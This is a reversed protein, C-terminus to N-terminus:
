NLITFRGANHIRRKPFQEWHFDPRITWNTQGLDFNPNYYPDGNALFSAWRQRYFASDLPHPDTRSKGRSVSEHHILVADPSMVIRYGAERVRLCLDVDGFGVAMKECFGEIGQFVETKILLCAATVASVEHNVLLSGLAGPHREGDDLRWKMFKGYHEAAGYMGVCVGGHQILTQDPYLLLAGVAGIDRQYSLRLMTDLWGAETAEIDNNCLLLHSYDDGLSRIARNNISSFNFAGQHRLRRHNPRQREFEDFYALSEAQDSDHDILVIDYDIGSITRHLSEVCQKVLHGYNKTPIVIAVRAKQPLPYDVKYYNFRDRAAVTAGALGSRELHRSLVRKSVAEVEAKKQHGTSSGRQRWQYLVEPIHVVKEAREAVRLILDYDHSIALSEDFGDIERLLATRFCVLHVIYPHGRLRELSFAPRFVWNQISDGSEDVLVEDSYLFDPADEVISDALRWLAQPEILDDHDLLACYRGTAMALARNSAAATNTNRASESVRIRADRRAYEKLTAVVQPDTSGDDAACLEWHPYWQALVSDLMARLLPLPTNYTPVLVSILPPDSWNAGIERLPAVRFDVFGRRYIEWARDFGELVSFTHFFNKLGPIGAQAYSASLGKVASPIKGPNRALLRAFAALKKIKRSM